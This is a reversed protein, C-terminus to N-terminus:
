DDDWHHCDHPDEGGSFEWMHKGEKVRDQIWSCLSENGPMYKSFPMLDVSHSPAVGRGYGGGNSYRVASFVDKGLITKRIFYTEIYKQFGLPAQVAFSAEVILHSAM